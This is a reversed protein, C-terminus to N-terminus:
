HDFDMLVLKDDKCPHLFPLKTKKIHLRDSETLTLVDKVRQYLNPLESFNGSKYGLHHLATPTYVETYIGPLHELRAFDHLAQRTLAFGNALCGYIAHPSDGRTTFGHLFQQFGPDKGYRIAHLWNTGTRNVCDKGAFDCRLTEFGRHLRDFADPTLPWHDYEMLYLHTIGPEPEVLKQYASQYIATYSQDHLPGRLTPCDIFLKQSFRINEFQDLPGGYAIAFREQPYTKSLWDLQRDVAEAPRHTLVLHLWHQM